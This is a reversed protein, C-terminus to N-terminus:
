QANSQLIIVYDEADGKRSFAEEAKFSHSGDGGRHLSEQLGGELKIMEEVTNPLIVNYCSIVLCNCGHGRALTCNKISICRTVCLTSGTDDWARLLFHNKWWLPSLVLVPTLSLGSTGWFWVCLAWAPSASAAAAALHLKCSGFLAAPLMLCCKSFSFVDM